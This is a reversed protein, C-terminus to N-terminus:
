KGAKEVQIFTEVGQDLEVLKGSGGPLRDVLELKASLTQNRIYDSFQHIANDLDKHKVIRLIIRDTVDFDSEKRLNQIRNIFERAIGESKLEPTINMDLAVTIPGDSAVQWGPIEESHIEVDDLSLSIYKGDIISEFSGNGEFLSIESQSMNTILASIQKMLKGYKPGLTKFNAKIRKKIIGSADTLYEVEKVNVETLIINEVTEFQKRFNENLIPVIIKALPQRVKIKEKRRLALIMSCVKQAIDMREEISKDILNMDPIPFRTIHVSSADERHTVNNLDNFLQDSYFPAVPAALM